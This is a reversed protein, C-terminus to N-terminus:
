PEIRLLGFDTMLCALRDGSWGWYSAYFGDGWGSSFVAINLRDDDKSEYPDAPVTSAHHPRTQELLLEFYEKEEAPQRPGLNMLAWSRTHVYTPEMQALIEEFYDEVKDMLVVLRRAAAEDMFCGTGSDVGYGFIHDPKLTAVDQGPWVAMEWRDPADMAFDLSAAAVRQDGGEYHAIFLRVPFQGTPTEKGLPTPKHLTLPDCVVVRGTPVCLRGIPCVEVTSVGPPLAEPQKGALVAKLCPDLPPEAM